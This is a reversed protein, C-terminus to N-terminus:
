PWRTILYNGAMVESRSISRGWHVDARYNGEVVTIHDSFIELICVSHSDGNIRLIDGVHLDEYTYYDIRRAPLRDYVVDSMMMAFGYCGYGTFYSYPPMRGIWQYYNSNSWLYGEPYVEKMAILRQYAVEASPLDGLLEGDDSLFYRVGDDEIWGTKMDGNTRDLFYRKDGDEIWGTKMDGNTRDLFYWKGGNRIWGTKMDGNVSDLFYWTEGDLFWGTRMDGNVRNLFYWKGGDLLWGTKMHGNARDLFYWKGGSRIWGTKMDGNTRDLFYWREGDLLWGTRMLGSTEDLFYWKGGTKLWGTRMSGDDNYYRWGEDDLVWGRVAESEVAEAATGDAPDQAYTHLPFLAALACLALLLSLIRRRM